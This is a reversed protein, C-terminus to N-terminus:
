IRASGTNTNSLLSMIFGNNTVLPDFKAVITGGSSPNIWADITFDNTGFDLSPNHPVVVYNTGDFELAGIVRGPVRVPTNINAGDNTGIIDLSIGGSPENFPWWSVMGSPPLVCAVGNTPVMEEQAQVSTGGFPFSITALLGFFWLITWQTSTKM